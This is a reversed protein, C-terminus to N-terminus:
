KQPQEKPGGHIDLKLKKKDLQALEIDESMELAKKFCSDVCQGCYICKDLDIKAQFTGDERKKIEIAGAPCDKMCLKCGTCKAPDFTLKGRYKDAMKLKEYPYLNTAPKKFFTELVETLMKGITTKRLNM